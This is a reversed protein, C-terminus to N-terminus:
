ENLIQKICFIFKKKLINKDTWNTVGEVRTGPATVASVGGGV